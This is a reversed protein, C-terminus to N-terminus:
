QSRHAAQQGPRIMPVEHLTSTDLILSRGGSLWHILLPGNGPQINLGQFDFLSHLPVLVFGQSTHLQRLLVQGLALVVLGFLEQVLALFQKGRALSFTRAMATTTRYLGVDSM